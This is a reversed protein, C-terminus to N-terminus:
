ATKLSKEFYYMYNRMLHWRFVNYVLLFEVCLDVVSDLLHFHDDLLKEQRFNHPFRLIEIVEDLKAPSFIIKFIQTFFPLFDKTKFTSKYTCELSCDILTRRHILIIVDISLSNQHHTKTLLIRLLCNTNGYVRFRTHIAVMEPVFIIKLFM